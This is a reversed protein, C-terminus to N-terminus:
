RTLTVSPDFPDYELSNMVYTNYGTVKTSAPLFFIQYFFTIFTETDEPARRINM